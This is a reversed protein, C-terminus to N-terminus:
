VHSFFYCFIGVSIGIILGYVAWRVDRKNQNKKTQVAEIAYLDFMEKNKM